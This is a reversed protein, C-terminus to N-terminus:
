DVISLRPKPEDSRKAAAKVRSAPLRMIKSIKKLHFNTNNRSWGMFSMIFMRPAGWSLHHFWYSQALYPYLDEKSNMELEQPIGNLTWCKANPIADLAILEILDPLKVRILHTATIGENLELDLKTVRLKEGDFVGKIELDPLSELQFRYHFDKPVELLGVDSVPGVSTFGSPKTVQEFSKVVNTM